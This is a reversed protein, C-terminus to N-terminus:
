GFRKRSRSEWIERALAEAAPVTDARGLLKLAVAATGVVAAEPGPADLDGRWLAGVRRPELPEDRWGHSAPKTLAPWVDEGPLGEALTLSRCAKEPNRQVEGGGGKFIAAGRQGLLHATELHTDLYTPHFVGQMMAPADGPNLERAFTNAPSRVGLLPRLAFLQELAPCFSALPLYAFGTGAIAEGAAAMSRCPQVGLAELVAPTTVAGTGAIGHM